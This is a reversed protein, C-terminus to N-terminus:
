EFVDKWQQKLPLDLHKDYQYILSASEKDVLELDFMEWFLVRWIRYQEMTNIEFDEVDCKENIANINRFGKSTLQKNKTVINNSKFSFANASRTRELMLKAECRCCRKANTILFGCDVCATCEVKSPEGVAKHVNWEIQGAM